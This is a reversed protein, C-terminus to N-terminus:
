EDNQDTAGDSRATEVEELMRQFTLWRTTMEHALKSASKGGLLSQLMEWLEDLFDLLKKLWKPMNPFLIELLKKILHIIIGIWALGLKSNAGPSAMAENASATISLGGALRLQREILQKAEDNSQEYMRRLENAIQTTAEGATNALIRVTPQLDPDDSTLEHARSFFAQTFKIIQDLYEPFLLTRPPDNSTLNSGPKTAM